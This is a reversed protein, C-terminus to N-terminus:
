IKLMQEMLLIQWERFQSLDSEMGRKLIQSGHVVQRSTRLVWNLALSFLRLRLFEDSVILDNFKAHYFWWLLYMDINCINKLDVRNLVQQDKSTVEMITTRSATSKNVGHLEKMWCSSSTRKEIVSHLLPVLGPSSKCECACAYVWM